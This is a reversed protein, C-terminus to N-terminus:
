AASTKGALVRGLRDLNQENAPEVIHRIAAAVATDTFAQTWRVLTGEPVAILEVTLTFRPASMHDIVLLSPAAVQTFVCENQFRSGDPAIMVFRWTGSQRFDFTEFENTFGAPGWWSALVDASSFAAFVSAPPYPVLRSTAITAHASM